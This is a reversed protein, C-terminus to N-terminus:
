SGPLMGFAVLGRRADRGPQVRDGAVHREVPQPLPLGARIEREHFGGGVRPSGTRLWPGEQFSLPRRQRHGLRELLESRPLALRDGEDVILLQGMPLSRLHEPDAHLRDLRQEGASSTLEPLEQAANRPVFSSARSPCPGAATRASGRDIRPPARASALALAPPPAYPGPSSQLPASGEPPPREHRGTARRPRSWRA